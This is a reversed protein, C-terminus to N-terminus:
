AKKCDKTDVPMETIQKSAVDLYSFIVTIQMKRFESMSDATCVSNYLTPQMYERFKTVNIESLESNTLKYVYKFTEDAGVTTVLITESDVTMPLNENLESAAKMLIKTHDSTRTFLGDVAWRGIFASGVASVVILTNMLTKNL